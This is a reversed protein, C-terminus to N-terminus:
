DGAATEEHRRRAVKPARADRVRYEYRRGHYEVVVTEGERRVSAEVPRGDVTARTIAGVAGAVFREKGDLTLAFGDGEARLDIERERSEHLAELLIKM